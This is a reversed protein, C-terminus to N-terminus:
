WFFNPCYNNGKNGFNLLDGSLLMTLFDYGLLGKYIQYSICATYQIYLLLSIVTLPTTSIALVGVQLESSWYWLPILPPPRYSIGICNGGNLRNQLRLRTTSICSKKPHFDAMKLLTPNLGKIVMIEPILFFEFFAETAPFTNPYVKLQWRLHGQPM